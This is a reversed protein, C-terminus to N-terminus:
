TGTSAYVCAHLCCERPEHTILFSVIVHLQSAFDQSTWVFYPSIQIPYLWSVGYVNYTFNHFALYLNQLHRTMDRLFLIKGDDKRLQIANIEKEQGIARNPSRTSHEICTEPFSMRAKNRSFSYIIFNPSPGPYHCTPPLPPPNNSNLALM